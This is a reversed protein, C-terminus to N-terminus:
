KGTYTTPSSPVEATNYYMKGTSPDVLIKGPRTFEALAANKVDEGGPFNRYSSIFQIFDAMDKYTSINNKYDKLINLTYEDDFLNRDYLGRKRLQDGVARSFRYLIRDTNADVLMTSLKDQFENLKMVSSKSIPIEQIRAVIGKETPVTVISSAYLKPLKRGDKTETTLPQLSPPGTSVRESAFGATPETYQVKMYLPSRPKGGIPVAYLRDKRLLGAKALTSLQTLASITPDSLSKSIIRGVENLVVPRPRQQSETDQEIYLPLERHVQPRIQIETPANKANGTPIRIPRTIPTLYPMTDNPFIVADELFPARIQSTFIEAAPVYHYSLDNPSVGTRILREDYRHPPPQKDTKLPFTDLFRKSESLLRNYNEREEKTANEPLPVEMFDYKSMDRTFVDSHLLANVKTVYDLPDISEGALLHNNRLDILDKYFKVMKEALIYRISEPSQQLLNHANAAAPHKDLLLDSESFLRLPQGEVDDERIYNHWFPRNLLSYYSNLLNGYRNEAKDFAAQAEKIAESTANSKLVKFYNDKSIEYDKEAQNLTNIFADKSSLGYVPNIAYTDVLNNVHYNTYMDSFSHSLPRKTDEIVSRGSTNLPALSSAIVYDHYPPLGIGHYSLLERIASANNFADNANQYINRTGILDNVIPINSGYGSYNRMLKPWEEYPFSTPLETDPTATKQQEDSEGTSTLKAAPTTGVNRTNGVNDPSQAQKLLFPATAQFPSTINVKVTDNILKNIQKFLNSAYM